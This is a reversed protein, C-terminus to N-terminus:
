NKKRIAKVPRMQIMFTEALLMSICLNAFEIVQFLRVTGEPIFFANGNNRLVFPPKGDNRLYFLTDWKHSDM